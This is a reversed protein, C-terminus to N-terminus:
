SRAGRPRENSRGTDPFPPRESNYAGWLQQNQRLLTAADTGSLCHVRDHWLCSHAEKTNDGGAEALRVLALISYQNWVTWFINALIVGTVTSWKWRKYCVWLSSRNYPPCQQLPLNEPLANWSNQIVKVHPFSVSTPDVAVTNNASLLPLDNRLSLCIISVALFCLTCLFTHGECVAVLIEVPNRPKRSVFNLLLRETRTLSVSSDAWLM